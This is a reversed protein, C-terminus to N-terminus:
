IKIQGITKRKSSNNMKRMKKRDYIFLRLNKVIKQTKKESNKPILVVIKHVIKGNKSFKKSNQQRKLSM